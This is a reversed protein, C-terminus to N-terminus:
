KLERKARQISIRSMQLVPASARFSHLRDCAKTERRNELLWSSSTPSETEGAIECNSSRLAREVILEVERLFALDDVSQDSVSIQATRAVSSHCTDKDSAMSLAPGRFSSYPIM